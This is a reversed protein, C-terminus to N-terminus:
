LAPMVPKPERTFILMSGEVIVACSLEMSQKWNVLAVAFVEIRFPKKSCDVLGRFQAFFYLSVDVGCLLLRANYHYTKVRKDDHKIM